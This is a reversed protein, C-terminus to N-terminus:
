NDRRREVKTLRDRSASLLENLSRAYREMVAVASVEFHGYILAVIRAEAQNPPMTGDFQRHICAKFEEISAEVTRRAELPLLELEARIARFAGEQAAKLEDLVLQRTKEDM